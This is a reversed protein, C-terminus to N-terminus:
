KYIQMDKIYIKNIMGKGFRAEVAKTLREELYPRQFGGQEVMKRPLIGHLETNVADFLRPMREEVKKQKEADDFVVTILFDIRQTSKNGNIIAISTLPLDIQTLVPPPPPPEEAQANEDKPKLFYWWVAAAGGGLLLLIVLLIILKKM